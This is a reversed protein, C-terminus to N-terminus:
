NNTGFFFICLSALNKKPAKRLEAPPESVQLPPCMMLNRVSHVYMPIPQPPPRRGEWFPLLLLLLLWSLFLYNRVRGPWPQFGKM